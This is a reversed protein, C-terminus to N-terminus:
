RSTSELQDVGGLDHGRGVDGASGVLYQSIQTLVLHSCQILHIDSHRGGVLHVAELEPRAGRGRHVDDGADGGLAFGDAHHDVHQGTIAM